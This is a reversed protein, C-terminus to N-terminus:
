EKEGTKVATMAKRIAEAIDKGERGIHRRYDPSTLVCRAPFSETPSYLTWTWGNPMVADIANCVDDATMGPM